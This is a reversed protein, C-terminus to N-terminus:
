IMDLMINRVASVESRKYWLCILKSRCLVIGCMVYWRRMEDHRTVVIQGVVPWCVIGLEETGTGEGRGEGM